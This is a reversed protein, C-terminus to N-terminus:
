SQHRFAVGAPTLPSAPRAVLPSRAHTTAAAGPLSHTTEVSRMLVRM